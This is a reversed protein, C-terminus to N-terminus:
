KYEATWAFWFMTVAFGVGGIMALPLRDEPEMEKGGKEIKKKRIRTDILVFFGGIFAGTKVNIGAYL